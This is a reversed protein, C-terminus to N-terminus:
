KDLRMLESGMNLKFYIDKLSSHWLSKNDPAYKMSAEYNVRAKNYIDDINKKEEIYKKTGATENFISYADHAKNLYIGGICSYSEADDQKIEIAKSYSLLASDPMNLYEEVKGRIFWCNRNDPNSNTAVKVINLSERFKGKDNYYKILVSYFYEYHPYNKLGYDLLRLMNLTDGLAAYSKSGMEVIVAKTSTDSLAENLHKVVGKHNDSAHSSLVSLLATSKIISDEKVKDSVYDKILTNESSEIYMDFYQYAKDYQKKKYHFKGASLLNNRFSNLKEYNKNRYKYKAKKAGPQSNLNTEISDCKIAYVYMNLIHNFYKATDAKAKLYMKRNEGLALNEQANVLIDYFEADNKAEEYKTIANYAIDNVRQYNNAKLNERIEKMVSKKKYSPANNQSSVAICNIALFCIIFFLRQM